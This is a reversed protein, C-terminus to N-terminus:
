HGLYNQNLFLVKCLASPLLCVRHTPNPWFFTSSRSTLRGTNEMRRAGVAQDPVLVDRRNAQPSTLSPWRAPASAPRAGGTRGPAPRRASIVPGPPVPWPLAGGPRGLRAARPKRLQWNGLSIRFGASRSLAPGAWPNWGGSQPNAWECVTVGVEPVSRAVAGVECTCTAGRGREPHFGRPEARGGLGPYSDPRRRPGCPSSAHAARPCCGWSEWGRCRRRGGTDGRFGCHTPPLGGGATPLLPAQGGEKEEGKIEPQGPLRRRRLLRRGADTTLESSPLHRRWPTPPPNPGGRSAPVRGPPGSAGPPPRSPRPPAAPSDYQHLTHSHTFTHTRTHVRTRHSVISGGM